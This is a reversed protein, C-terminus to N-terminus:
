SKVHALIAGLKDPSPTDTPEIWWGRADRRLYTKFERWLWREARAEILDRADEDTLRVETAQFWRVKDGMTSHVLRPLKFGARQLTFLQDLLSDM